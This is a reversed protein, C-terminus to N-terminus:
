RVFKALNITTITAEEGERELRLAIEEPSIPCVWLRGSMGTPLGTPIIMLRPDSSTMPAAPLEKSIRLPTRSDWRGFDVYHPGKEEPDGTPAGMPLKATFRPPFGRLDGLFYSFGQTQRVLHVERNAIKLAGMAVATKPTVGQILVGRDMVTPTEYLVVQQFPKDSNPRWVELNPINLEEKLAQVVFNSRSSNGALLIIVGQEQWNGETTGGWAANQLLSKLLRVGDRIRTQLHSILDSHIEGVRAFSNITVETGDLRAAQLETVPQPANNRGFKVKELGLERQFRVRNQRAALSRKYLHPKDALHNPPITAPRMMPVDKKEMEPLYRPHQHCLWVLEQTLYDGGLQDNGGVQLTEIVSSCGSDNYEDESAPRFRGCAVDLTGGGFDFVAFRMEGYKELLPALAPHAALEPCVEAAFAEPESSRMSVSVMDAPISEPISLLIGKRLEEELLDTAKENLKAPHTLWYNLYVDQGPRNIARGILYAYTRILMRIRAEDLLFDKQKERDRLQPSQDLDMVREPLSKLEGVVANPSNTMAEFAAYSGKVARVVQPFRQESQLAAWLKEHDEILLYTPNEPSPNSDSGGLRLLSRYGKQYLAAVTASTGFDLGVASLRQFSKIQRYPDRIRLPIPAHWALVSRGGQFSLQHSVVLDIPIDRGEPPLEELEEHGTDLEFETATANGGSRHRADEWLLDQQDNNRQWRHAVNMPKSDLLYGKDTLRSWIAELRLRARGTGRYFGEEPNQLDFLRRVPGDFLLSDTIDRLDLSNLTPGPGGIAVLTLRLLRMTRENPLIVLDLAFSAGTTATLERLPVSIELFFEPFPHGQLCPVEYVDGLRRGDIQLYAAFPEEAKGALRVVLDASAKWGEFFPLALDHAATVLNPSKLELRVSEVTSRKLLVDMEDIRVASPPTPKSQNPQSASEQM